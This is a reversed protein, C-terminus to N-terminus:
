MALHDEEEVDMATQLQLPILCPLVSVPHYECQQLFVRMGDDEGVVEQMPRGKRDRIFVDAWLLQLVIAECKRPAGEAECREAEKLWQERTLLM